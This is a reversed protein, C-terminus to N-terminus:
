VEGAATIFVTGDQGGARLAAIKWAPDVAWYEAIEAPLYLSSTTATPAGAFALHCAVTSVVRVMGCGLPNVTAASAAGAALTVTAGPVVAPLGDGSIGIATVTRKHAM